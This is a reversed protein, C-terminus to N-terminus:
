SGLGVTTGAQLVFLLFTGVHLEGLRLLWAPVESLIRNLNRDRECLKLVEKLSWFLYKGRKVWGLMWCAGVLLNTM